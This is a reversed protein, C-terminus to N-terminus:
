EKDGHSSAGAPLLFLSQRFWHVRQTKYRKLTEPKRSYHHGVRSFVTTKPWGPDEGELDSGFYPGTSTPAKAILRKLNDTASDAYGKAKFQFPTEAM